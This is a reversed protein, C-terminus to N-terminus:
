SFEGSEIRNKIKNMSKSLSELMSIVSDTQVQPLNELVEKHLQLMFEAQEEAIKRGKKTLKLLIVRRDNKNEMRSVLGKRVLGDIIRTIRSKAACMKEALDGSSKCNEFLMATLCRSESVTLDYSNAQYAERM